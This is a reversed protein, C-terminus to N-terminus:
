KKGKCGSLQQERSQLQVKWEDPGVGGCWAVHAKLDASWEPGSFGCKSAENDKQQQLAIKGYTECNAQALAPGTLGVAGLLVTTVFTRMTPM